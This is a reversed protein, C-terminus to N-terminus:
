ILLNVVMSDKLKNVERKCDCECFRYSHKLRGFQNVNVFVTRIENIILM